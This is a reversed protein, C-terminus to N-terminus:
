RSIALPVYNAPASQDAAKATQPLMKDVPIEGKNIEVAEEWTARLDVLLKEVIRLKEIDKHLNALTLERIMFNYLADLNEAIEGGITHDLSNSFETIIAMSKRIGNHFLTLNDEEIGYIAQRTFRIAGDYLMLLIQEPSASLIQNQHYQSYANM